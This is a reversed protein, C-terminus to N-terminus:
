PAAPLSSQLLLDIIIFDDRTALPLGQNISLSLDSLAPALSTLSDLPLEPLAFSLGGEGLAGQLQPWILTLVLDELETPGLLPRGNSSTTNITWITTEPTPAIALRIFGDAIDLSAGVRLNIGMVDTQRISTLTLEAQGLEVFLDFPEGKVAPTIVPPLLGTLSAAQVLASIQEPLISSLDLNLVGSDWVNYLLGNLLSLRLGIQMPRTVYFPSGSSTNSLLPVGPATPILPPLDTGATLSLLADLATRATPILTQVGGSVQLNFTPLPPTDVPITQQALLTDLSSFLSTLLDPLANLFSGNIADLLASELTGRLASEALTFVANAEPSNFNSSADEIALQLDAVEVQYPDDPSAKLVTVRILASVSATIDGTLDLSLGDFTLGGETTATLAPISLYIDLGTSTIDIAVQPQGLTASTVRLTFGDGSIIPDPIQGQLDVYRLILELLDALDQTQVPQGPTVLLPTGDDFFTQAIKLVLGDPLTLAAVERDPDLPLYDSAWLVDLAAEATINQVGDSAIAEVHNIGFHVPVQSTFTGGEGISARLGNVYVAPTGHSDSVVGTVTLTDHATGTLFDGPVPYTITISPPSQDVIIQAEGCVTASAEADVCARFTLTGEESPLWQGAKAPDPDQAAADAPSVTWVLPTNPMEVGDDGFVIASPTIAQNLRYFARAPDIAVQVFAPQPIYPTTDPPTTSTDPSTSTTDDFADESTPDPDASAAEDDCGTLAIVWLCALLCLLARRLRVPGQLPARRPHRAPSQM